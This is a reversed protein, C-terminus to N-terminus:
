TFILLILSVVKNSCEYRPCFYFTTYQSYFISTKCVSLIPVSLFPLLISIICLFM